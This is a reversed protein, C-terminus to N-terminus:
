PRLFTAGGRVPQNRVFDGTHTAAIMRGGGIYLGVHGPYWAIDGPQPNGVVPLSGRLAGSSHPLSKGGARWAMMVLGSCDYCGPGAGGYCYPLGVKGAAFSIAAGANGSVPPIPGATPRPGYDDGSGRNALANRARAQRLLDETRAVAREVDAKDKAMGSLEAAQRKETGSLETTMATLAADVSRYQSMLEENRQAMVDLTEIGKIALAPDADFVAMMGQTPGMQYISVGVANVQAQLQSHQDKADKVRAKLGDMERRTKELALKKQLYSEVMQDAEDNQKALREALGAPNPGTQAGAGPALLNFACITLLLSVGFSWSRRVTPSPL